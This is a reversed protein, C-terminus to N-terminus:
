IEDGGGKKRCQGDYWLFQRCVGRIIKVEKASLQLRGFFRRINHMWHDHEPAKLFDIRSLVEELHDYMGELEHSGAIKPAYKKKEGTILEHLGTNIEYCHIAVAQALNLSSFDVTSITSLLQCYKLDDNTLGRDEPGFLIAVKNKALLPLVEASLDRPSLLTQRLGGVRATTGIVMAFPALARGLDSHVEMSDILHAAKHTAMKLMKERDPAERPVLILSSIGMNMAVRAAAGINEPYKPEMLVIALNDLFPKVIETGAKAM